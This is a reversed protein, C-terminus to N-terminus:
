AKPEVMIGSLDAGTVVDLNSMLVGRDNAEWKTMGYGPSDIMFIPGRPPSMGAPIVFGATLVQASNNNFICDKFLMFRDIAANDVLEVWIAGGNGAKMTFESGYFRNRTAEGDVLLGAMGTAADITDVGITCNVFTNEEAANLHLSAGGDVAQTAHGGGAFHINEFYNRGGTVSFNILSTADAVGQFSYFNKFICGSGSVTWLPSAGTLDSAQFIRARQASRTPACYGVFHAYNNSWVVPAALTISTPGGVYHLTDNFGSRMLAIAGEITAMPNDAPAGVGEAGAGDSADPFDPIVWFHAGGPPIVGMGVPVGNLTLTGDFDTM